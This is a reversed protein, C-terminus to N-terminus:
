EYWGISLLSRSSILKTRVGVTLVRDAVPYVLKGMDKHQVLLGMDKRPRRGVIKDKEKIEKLISWILIETQLDNPYICEM